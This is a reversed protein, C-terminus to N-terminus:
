KIKKVIVYYENSLPHGRDCYFAGTINHDYALKERKMFTSASVKICGRLTIATDGLDRNSMTAGQYTTYYVLKSQQKQDAPKFGHLQDAHAFGAFFALLIFIINKM